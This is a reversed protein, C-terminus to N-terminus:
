FKNSTESERWLDVYLKGNLPFTKLDVNLAESPNHEISAINLVLNYNSHGSFAVWNGNPITLRAYNEDGISATCGKENVDDWIHFKVTGIPVILNTIMQSHKKWGKIQDKKIETFYAEGFGLFSTDSSKLAHLIDGKPHHMRNLKTLVLGDNNMIM